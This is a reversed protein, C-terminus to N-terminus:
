RRRPAHPSGLARRLAEWRSVPGASVAPPPSSGDRSLQAALRDILGSLEQATERFRRASGGMPDKIDDRGGAAAVDAPRRGLQLGALWDAPEHGALPGAQEARRVLDTLTFCRPWCAPDLGVAAQVQRSEMTIVLDAGALLEATLSRSRHAELTLGREAVARRAGDAAPRGAPGFGASTVDPDLGMGELRDALLVQAMPSRCQNAACVLLIRM